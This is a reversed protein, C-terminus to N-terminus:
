STTALERSPAAAASEDRLFSPTPLFASLSYRGPGALGLGAVVAALTLPYEMGNAQASFSGWHASVAAVLMTFVLPLAILRLGVGTLLAIGGLLEAGAALYANLTPLPFGLSALWGAFGEIGPGGFAGFAKQSGHFVFVVGVMLRILLLAADPRTKTLTSLNM